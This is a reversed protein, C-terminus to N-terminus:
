AALLRTLAATWAREIQRRSRSHATTLLDWAEFSLVSDVVVLRDEAEARGLPALESAFHRRAQETFRRRTEQLTTDFRLDEPAKRRAMRAIATIEEYLSLRADVVRRVRDPFPGVGEEPIEFLPAFREFYREITQQQLDDLNDFYRFLSSVSVGARRAVDETSPLDGREQLLGFMADIVSLRNQERRARRGDGSAADTTSSAAAM